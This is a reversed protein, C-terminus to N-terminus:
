LRTGVSATTNDVTLGITISPKFISESWLIPASVTTGTNSIAGAQTANFVWTTTGGQTFGGPPFPNPVDSAQVIRTVIVLLSADAPLALGKALTVTAGNITASVNMVPFVPTTEEAILDGLLPDTVSQLYVTVPSTNVVASGVLEPAGVERSFDDIIGPGLSLYNITANASN